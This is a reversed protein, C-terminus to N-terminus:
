SVVHMLIINIQTDQKILAHLDYNHGKISEALQDVFYDHRAGSGIIPIVIQLLELECKTMLEFLRKFSIRKIPNGTRYNVAPTPYISDADVAEEGVGDQFIPNLAQVNHWANPMVVVNMIVRPAGEWDDSRYMGQQM